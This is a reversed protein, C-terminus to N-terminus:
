YREGNDYFEYENLKITEKINAENDDADIYEYGTKEAEDCIGFYIKQFQDYVEQKADNYNRTSVEINTSRKHAYRSNSTICIRYGKWEFMGVFSVGDGQCYGLSYQTRFDKIVKIKHKSLNEKINETIGEELFPYDNTLRFHEIVKEQVPKSLEEFEYITIQETRM